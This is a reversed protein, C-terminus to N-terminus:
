KTKPGKKHEGFAKSNSTNWSRESEGEGGSSVQQGLQAVMLWNNSKLKRTQLSPNM